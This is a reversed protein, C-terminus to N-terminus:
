VTYVNLKTELAAGQSATVPVNYYRQPESGPLELAVTYKGTALGRFDYTGDVDTVQSQAKQGRASITVTVGAIPVGDAAVVIGTLTGGAATVQPEPRTTACATALLVAFLVLARKM